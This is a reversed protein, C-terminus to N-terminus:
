TSISIDIKGLHLRAYKHLLSCAHYTYGTIVKTDIKGRFATAQLQQLCCDGRLPQFQMNVTKQMRTLAVTLAM